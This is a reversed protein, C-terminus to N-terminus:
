LSIHCAALLDAPDADELEPMGFRLVAAVGSIDLLQRGSEHRSSFLFVDGGAAEVSEVLAVWQKRAKVDHM